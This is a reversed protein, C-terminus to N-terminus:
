VEPGYLEKLLPEEDIIYARRQSESRILSLLIVSRPRCCGSNRAVLEFEMMPQVAIREVAASVVDFELEAM